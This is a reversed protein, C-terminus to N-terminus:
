KHKQKKNKNKHNINYILEHTPDHLTPLLFDALPWWWGYQHPSPLSNPWYSHFHYVESSRENAINNSLKSSNHSASPDRHHIWASREGKIREIDCTRSEKDFLASSTILINTDSHSLKSFILIVIQSLRFLRIEM